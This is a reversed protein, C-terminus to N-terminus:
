DEGEEAEGEELIELEVGPWPFQYEVEEFEDMDYEFAMKIRSKVSPHSSLLTFEPLDKTPSSEQLRKFIVGLHRPNIGSDYLTGLAFQDAEKEQKRSFAGSSIAKVIEKMLLVDGGTSIGLIVSIGFESILKKIVHDHEIHGMEHALVAAIEEPNEAVELLGRFFYINGGLTAFANVIPEDIVKITYDIDKNEVSHLQLVKVMSDLGEQWESDELVKFQQEIIDTIYGAVKEEQEKSIWGKNEKSGPIILSFVAWIVGFLVVLILADRLIKNRM